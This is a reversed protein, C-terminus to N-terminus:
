LKPPSKIKVQLARLNTFFGAGFRFFYDLHVVISLSCALSSVPQIHIPIPYARTSTYQHHHTLRTAWYAQAEPSDYVGGVDIYGDGRRVEFSNKVPICPTPIDEAFDRYRKSWILLLISPLMVPSGEGLITKVWAEGFQYFFRWLYYDVSRGCM